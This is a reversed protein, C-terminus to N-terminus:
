TGDGTGDPLRKAMAEVDGARVRLSRPGVRYGRLYGYVIFRRVTRVSVGLTDAAVRLTVLRAPDGEGTGDTM